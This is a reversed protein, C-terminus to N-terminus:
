LFADHDSLPPPHELCGARGHALLEGRTGVEFQEHLNFLAPLAVRLHNLPEAISGTALAAGRYLARGGAGESRDRRQPLAPRTGRSWRLRDRRRRDRDDRARDREAGAIEDEDVVIAQGGTALMADVLAVWDYTEDDLIGHALSHPVTEWPWM